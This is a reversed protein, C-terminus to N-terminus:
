RVAVPAEVREQELLERYMGSLSAVHEQMSYVGPIGGSLEDWLRPATVARRITDALSRADGVTFHLGNVGHEVKEAMGGIDSCIVPRGFLFAEQVVLPSNEWWRSPVVVWDVKSMVDPLGGREYGGGFTVNGAENLLSWFRQQYDDPYSWLNSGYVWLHVDVQEERLIRMAELLTETGKFPGLDGFFGLRNRPRDEGSEPFPVAPPRGYDEFRIRERPMGWDVYRELLFRSPALFVDVHDLHTRIFRDRLFFDQESIAPFCQHCRRPSAELCLAESGTRVLKGDRHCISRYDHLTHVIPVSPLLRDILSILECGILPSHQFHVVDPQQARLFDAFYRSYLSTDGYTLYFPDFGDKEVLVLYQSPDGDLTSFPAGPRHSRPIGQESGMRSVLVPEVDASQRMAEHLELAYAAPGGPHLLPHSNSLYLVKTKRDV